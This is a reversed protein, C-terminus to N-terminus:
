SEGAGTCRNWGVWRAVTARAGQAVGRDGMRGGDFPVLPDKTGNFYELSVVVAPHCSGALWEGFTASVVGVAAFRGPMQCALRERRRFGDPYAVLAGVSDAIANFETKRQMLLGSGGRGHLLVVLPLAGGRSQSARPRHLVYHRTLRGVVLSYSSDGAQGRLTAAGLMM